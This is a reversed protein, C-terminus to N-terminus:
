EIPVGTGHQHFVPVSFEVEPGPDLAICKGAGEGGTRLVRDAAWTAGKDESVALYGIWADGLPSHFAGVLRGDLYLLSSPKDNVAPKRDIKPAYNCRINGSINPFTGTLQAIGCDTGEGGIGAGDGWGTYVAGDDAWTNLWLDGNSAFPIIPDGEPAVSVIVPSQSLGSSPRIVGVFLGIATLVVEIALLPQDIRRNKM